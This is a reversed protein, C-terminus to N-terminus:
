SRDLLQERLAVHPARRAHESADLREHHPDGARVPLRRRLIVDGMEQGPLAADDGARAAEVVAGPQRAGDVLVERRARLHEHGLHAGVPTPLDRLEACPQAGLDRDDGGDAGGMELTEPAQLARELGLRLDGGAGPHHHQVDVVGAQLSQGLTEVRGVLHHPGRPGVRSSVDGHKRM